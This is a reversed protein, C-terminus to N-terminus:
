KKESTATLATLNCMNIIEAVTATRQIINATSKMPVLIPGIASADSLQSLLKYSINASNLEPFILVDAPGDLTSFNFLKDLIAKNVAIDAQLEGDVILEPYRSKTLAVAKKVKKSVPHNNSGFSAFSLFAVRPDRGMLQKFLNATTGAIEALDESNPDIQCTCDAFFLVRNKFVLIYIGAAKIGDDTGIVNIIPKLCSSYDLTPGSIVCDARGKRVMMSGFYNEQEMMDEAHYVSVGNRQRMQTFEMYYDSFSKDKSPQIIELDHLNELGLETMKDKIKDPNGLLIPEIRGERNIVDAAQLIRTNLGEAFVMKVRNKRKRVQSTLRDRLSKMFSTTQSLRNQLNATYEQFNEINVRAVGSDMAAKAVAPTVRTLVRPDFPKPIIYNKGFSFDQNDYAMKVEDPVEEKALDALAKVAAIKMEANIKRARVDLAGRFIFPFGLVNNVQNPFDSRGTAMIADDRVEAVEDPYIEPEPNAMAFIIPDKAMTAVMEKTLVGRASCGIFADAGKMADALTKLDRSTAFEEKYKNMGAGRGKYIVGKSDTMIINERKVGMDIFLRACAISAAGAGSFVAVVESIKRKTITLANLFGASAIIATGHQDDHFVPIEMQEVLQAEVEFCEPAKIDELNIGGFTPELTKIVNVMGEVTPEDIEIDFVDIDAFKKFLVGKGEMVPKGALAGINGLGLVATGNSIVGVLNGKATYKFADDPNKAIELCPWAVGPSYAKALDNSSITPKTANVEIKGPRGEEHYRLAELKQSENDRNKDNSV